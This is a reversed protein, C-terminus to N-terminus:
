SDGCTLVAQPNHISVLGILMLQAIVARLSEPNSVTEHTKLEVVMFTDSALLCGPLAISADSPM